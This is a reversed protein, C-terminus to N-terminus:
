TETMAASLNNKYRSYKSNPLAYTCNKPLESYPIAYYDRSRGNSIFLAVDCIEAPSKLSYIPKVRHKRERNPVRSMKKVVFKKRNVYAARKAFGRYLPVLRVSFQLGNERLAHELFQLYPSELAESRLKTATKMKTKAHGTLVNPFHTLKIYRVDNRTIDNKAAITVDSLDLYVIDSVLAAYSGPGHHREWYAAFKEHPPRGPQKAAPSQFHRYRIQTICTATVDFEKAIERDTLGDFIYNVLRPYAGRGHKRNWYRAFKEHPTKQGKMEMPQASFNKFRM